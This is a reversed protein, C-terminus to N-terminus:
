TGSNLAIAFEAVPLGEGAQLVDPTMGLVRVAVFLQSHLFSLPLRATLILILL